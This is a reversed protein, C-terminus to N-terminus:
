HDYHEEEVKREPTQSKRIEKVRSSALDNAEQWTVFTLRSEFSMDIGACDHYITQTVEEYSTRLGWWSSYKLKIFYDGQGKEQWIEYGLLEKFKKTMKQEILRHKVYYHALNRAQHQSGSWLPVKVYMDKSNDYDTQEICKVFSFIGLRYVLNVKFLKYECPVIVFHSYWM